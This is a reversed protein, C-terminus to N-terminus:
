DRKVGQGSSGRIVAFGARQSTGLTWGAMGELGVCEKIFV